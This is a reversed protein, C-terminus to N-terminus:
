SFNVGGRQSMGRPGEGALGEPFDKQEPLSKPPYHHTYTSPEMPHGHKDKLKIERTANFHEQLHTVHMLLPTHHVTPM